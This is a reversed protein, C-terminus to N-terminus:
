KPADGVARLPRWWWENALYWDVTKSLGSEFTEAASWGLEQSIKACNIAYRRDHGPRDAVFEILSAYDSGGPRPRRVDLLSCIAQVVSVNTRESNGGINYSEGVKGRRLVLELANVHDDVYLWDRVNEGKAYVPLKQGDLANLVMLPILKEPFQYPGFNNSCNSIVIPLGYTRHWARVFHDSAAKSASYPSSPAYPSEESFLGSDFPLDGFVEDTSVHHFRFAGQRTASLGKWYELAADLLQYTGLVNTEIFNKPNGISRDVHSEAALHLVADVNHEKMIAFMSKRDCIDAKVFRYHPSNEALKLSTLTSAYTLADVNVIRDAGRAALHRCVASGIFGSGGTIMIKM